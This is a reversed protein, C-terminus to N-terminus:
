EFCKRGHDEERTLAIYIPWGASLRYHITTGNIGTREAWEQVTLTAGDFEIFHNDRKNNAQRKYTSWQCNDPFYGEENKIRDITLHDEYGNAMAWEFFPVIGTRWEQCVDIGLRGYYQYSIHKPNDCRAIMGRRINNLRHTNLGHTSRDKCAKAAAERQACGCSIATGRTVQGAFNTCEVGCDCIFRWIRGKTSHRGIDEIALLRGFKQGTLDRRNIGVTGSM